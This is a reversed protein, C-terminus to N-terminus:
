ITFGLRELALPVLDELETIQAQSLGTTSLGFVDTGSQVLVIGAYLDVPAESEGIAEFRRSPLDTAPPSIENATFTIDFGGEDTAPIVWSDCNNTEAYADLYDTAQEATEFRILTQHLQRVGLDTSWSLGEWEVLGDVSPSTECLAEQDPGFPEIENTETQDFPVDALTLPIQLPGPNTSAADPASDETSEDTDSAGAAPTTGDVQETADDPPPDASFTTADDVAQSVQSGDNRLVQFLVFIVLAGVILTGLYAVVFLRINRNPRRQVTEAKGMPQGTPVYGHTGFSSVPPSLQEPHQGARYGAAAAQQPTAPATGAPTPSNAVTQNPPAPGLNTNPAAVVRTAASASSTSAQTSQARLASFRELVEAATAPRKAPDKSLLVDILTALGDSVGATRCDPPQDSLVRNIIPHISEDTKQVFPVSRFVAALLCVGIGYIDSAVTATKGSLIEPPAYAVSATIAASTTNQGDHLRAIGFDGLVVEGNGRMLINEPKLDRHLVGSSHAVDLATSLQSGIQLLDQEPIPNKKLLQWLTGGSIYELVLYPRGDTLSGATYVDVINPHGSLRGLAKCEREFRLKITADQIASHGVKIAVQRDINTQRALWVDGFGGGGLRTTPEFGDLQFTAAM